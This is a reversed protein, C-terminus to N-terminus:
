ESQVQRRRNETAVTRVVTRRRDHPPTTVLMPAPIANGSQGV